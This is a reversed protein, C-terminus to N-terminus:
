PLAAEVAEIRSALLPNKARAAALAERAAARDAEPQNGLAARLGLLGGRIVLAEALEPNTGLARDVLELGDEVVALAPRGQSHRWRAQRWRVEALAQLVSALTPNLDLGQQAWEAASGLVEAPSQGSHLAWEAELLAIDALRVLADAGTPDLELAQRLSRRADILIPSPDRDRSLEWRARELELEAATLHPPAYAENLPMADTLIERGRVVFASPDEGRLLAYRALDRYAMALNFRPYPSSPDLQIAHEFASISRELQPRPDGGRGLEYMGLIGHASAISNYGYSFEPALEVSRELSTIAAELRPTPDDGQTLDLFGLDWYALGLNYHARFQDPAITRARELLEVARLLEPRPDEGRTQVWSGAINAAIGREIFPRADDPDLALAREAAEISRELDPGPDRGRNLMSWARYAHHYAIDSQVDADLPDIEAATECAALTERHPGESEGGHDITLVTVASWSSCLRRWTEPDSRGIAAADRYHGIATAYLTLAEEPDGSGKARRAQERAVDGELRLAEFQWPIRRHALAALRQAKPWDDQFFALLAQGYEPAELGEGAGRGLWELAPRRLDEDARRRAAQRLPESQLRDAEEMARQFLDGYARGLAYAVGPIAYGSEWSHLLADRAPGPEGLALLARGVAYRGPGRTSSDEAIAERIAALRRRVIALEREVSHPPMLHAFRLLSEIGKVQEGFRQAAAAQGRALLRERWALGAFLALVAIVAGAVLRRGLRNRRTLVHRLRAGAETATGRRTPEFRLLDGLLRGLARDITGPPLTKGDAVQQLREPWGSVPEYAPSETFLEQLLIGFAYLDSAVTVVEGRAQEPSMYGLTGVVTRQRTLRDGGRDPVGEVATVPFAQTESEPDSVIEDEAERPEDEASRAIGFDLVKCVGEPTLMVNEPKLDRHVIGAAHAAALADAIGAAIVVKERFTLKEDLAQKLTRGEILELVLIERGETEVLDYIRCIGPHDLRSLIRAERLLRARAVPSLRREPPIVKLAVSRHLREDFGRYVEGMGGEGLLATIRFHAVESGIVGGVKDEEDVRTCETM